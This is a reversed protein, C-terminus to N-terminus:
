SFRSEKFQNSVKGIIMLLLMFSEDRLNEKKEIKRMRKM